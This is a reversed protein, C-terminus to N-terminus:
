RLTVTALPLGLSLPTCPSDLGWGVDGRIPPITGVFPGLPGVGSALHLGFRGGNENSANGVERRFDRGPLKLRQKFIVVEFSEHIASSFSSGIVRPFSAGSLGCSSPVRRLIESSIVWAGCRELDSM